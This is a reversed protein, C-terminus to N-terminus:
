QCSSFRYKKWSMLMDRREPCQGFFSPHQALHKPQLGKLCSSFISLNDSIKCTFPLFHFNPIRNCFQ